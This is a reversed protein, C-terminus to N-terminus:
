DILQFSEAITKFTKKHEAKKDKLTWAMIMYVQEGGEIFTLFYSIEDNVGNVKADLEISEADLGNMKSSISSSKKTINTTRALIQLRADRYNQLVSLKDDYQELDRFVEEFGAKPEDIIILYAEKLLSQYQLSAEENLGTTGNMFRPISIQYDNNIQLTSFDDDKSGSESENTGFNKCATFSLILIFLLAFKIRM